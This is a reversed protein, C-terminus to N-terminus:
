KKREFSITQPGAVYPAVQYPQFIFTVTDASILFSSFNGSNSDAGDPFFVDGLREELQATAAVSVQKLTLGIMRLADDLVLQRGTAKDFNLGHSLSNPHAGGTYETHVIEVSVIDPGIYPTDFDLTLELLPSAMDPPNATLTKFEKVIENVVKEIKPDITVIGFKPYKVDISHTATVEKMEMTTFPVVAVQPTTTAVFSPRSAPITLISLYYGAGLAM